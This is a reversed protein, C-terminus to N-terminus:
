WGVSDLVESATDQPARGENAVVADDLSLGDLVDELEVTRALAWERWYGEPERLTVRRVREDQSATVRVISVEAPGGDSAFARSYRQRDREDEVVCPIVICGYGRKRQAPAIAALSEFLLEQQFPNDDDAPAAQCLSDADVWAYRTGRERLIDGIASAVTTKGAGITGNIVLVRTPLEKAMCVSCVEHVYPGFKPANSYGIARYLAIAEPQETGTELIIRTAGSRRAAAEAFGMLVRSHGHGRHEPRVYLRKIEAAPAGAGYQSFRVFVCGVLEGSDASGVFSAIVGDDDIETEIDPEGYRAALDAQQERWLVQAGADHFDVRRVTIM